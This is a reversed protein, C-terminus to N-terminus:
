KGTNKHLCSSAYLRFGKQLKSSPAKCNNKYIQHIGSVNMNLLEQLCRSSFVAVPFTTFYGSVYSGNCLPSRDLFLGKSISEEQETFSTAFYRMRHTLKYLLGVYCVKTNVLRRILYSNLRIKLFTKCIM